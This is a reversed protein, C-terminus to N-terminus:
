WYYMQGGNGFHKLGRVSWRLTRSQHQPLTSLENQTKIENWLEM